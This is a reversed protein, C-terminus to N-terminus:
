GLRRRPRSGVAALVEELLVRGGCIPFATEPLLEEGDLAGAAGPSVLRSPLPRKMHAPMRQSRDVGYKVDIFRGETTRSAKYRGQLEYTGMGEVKQLVWIEGNSPNWIQEFERVTWGFYCMCFIRMLLGHTVLVYNQAPASRPDDGDEFYGTRGMTRFLYTIFAAM